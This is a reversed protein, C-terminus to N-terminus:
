FNSRIAFRHCKKIDYSLFLHSKNSLRQLINNLVFFLDLINMSKGFFFYFKFLKARTRNWTNAMKKSHSCQPSIVIYLKKSRFFQASTKWFHGTKKSRFYQARAYNLKLPYIPYSKAWFGRVYTCPKTKTYIPVAKSVHNLEM